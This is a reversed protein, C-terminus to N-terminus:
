ELNRNSKNTISSVFMRRYVSKWSTYFLVKLPSFAVVYLVWFGVLIRAPKWTLYFIYFREIFLQRYLILMSRRGFIELKTEFWVFSSISLFNKWTHIETGMATSFMQLRKVFITYTSVTTKWEPSTNRQLRKATPTVPKQIRQPMGSGEKMSTWYIM